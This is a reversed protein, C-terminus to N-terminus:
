QLDDAGEVLWISAGNVYIADVDSREALLFQAIETVLVDAEHELEM